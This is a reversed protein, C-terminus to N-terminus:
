RQTEVTDKASIVLYTGVLAEASDIVESALYFRDKGKPTGDEYRPRGNPDYVEFYTKGDVVRYGKVVIVHNSGDIYVRGGTFSLYYKGTRQEENKNFTIGFMNIGVILINGNDLYGTMNQLSVDYDSRCPISNDSLFNYINAMSWSAFVGYSDYLYTDRADRVSKNFNADSWKAAMVAATPACNVRSALGTENQNIYWDYDRNLSVYVSEIRGLGLKELDTLEAKECGALTLIFVTFLVLIRFTKM